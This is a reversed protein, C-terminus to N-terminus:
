PKCLDNWSKLVIKQQGGWFFQLAISNLSRIVGSPLLFCSMAYAPIAQVVIKIFIEKGAQSLVKGEVM